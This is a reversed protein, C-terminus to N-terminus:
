VIEVMTAATDSIPRSPKPETPHSMEVLHVFIALPGAFPPTVGPQPAVPAFTVELSTRGSLPCNPYAWAAHSVQGPAYDLRVAYMGTFPAAVEIDVRANMPQDIRLTPNLLELGRM